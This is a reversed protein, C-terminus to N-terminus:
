HKAYSRPRRRSVLSLLGLGALMLAYTEPEPIPATVVSSVDVVRMSHVTAIPFIDQSAFPSTMINAHPGWGAMQINGSLPTVELLGHASGTLISDLSNADVATSWFYGPSFGLDNAVFWGQPYNVTGLKTAGLYLSTTSSMYGIGGGAMNLMLSNALSMEAAVLPSYSTPDFSFDLWLKQGVSVQPFNIYDSPSPLPDANAFNAHLTVLLALLFKNM